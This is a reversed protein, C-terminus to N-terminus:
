QSALMRAETPVAESLGNGLGDNGQTLELFAFGPPNPLELVQQESLITRIRENQPTVLAADECRKSGTTM